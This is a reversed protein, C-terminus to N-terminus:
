KTHDKWYHCVVREGFIPSPIDIYEKKNRMPTVLTLWKAPDSKTEQSTTETLYHEIDERHGLLVIEDFHYACPLLRSRWM